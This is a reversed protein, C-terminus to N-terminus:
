KTWFNVIIQHNGGEDRGLHVNGEWDLIMHVEVHEVEDMAMVAKSVLSFDFDDQYIHVMVYYANNVRDQYKGGLPVEFVSCYHRELVDEIEGIVDSLLGM